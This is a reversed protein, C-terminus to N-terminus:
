GTGAVMMPSVGLGAAGAGPSDANRAEKRERAGRWALIAGFKGHLTVHVEGRKAGPTLTVRRILGRISEAAENPNLPENGLSRSSRPDPCSACTLFPYLSRQVTGHFAGGDGREGDALPATGGGSRRMASM